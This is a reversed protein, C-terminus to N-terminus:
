AQTHDLFSPNVCTLPLVHVARLFATSASIALGPERSQLVTQLLVCVTYLSPGLREM